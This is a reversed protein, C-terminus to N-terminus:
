IYNKLVPNFNIINETIKTWRYYKQSGRWKLIGENKEFERINLRTTRKAKCIENKPDTSYVITGVPITV